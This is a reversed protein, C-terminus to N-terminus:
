LFESEDIKDRSHLDFLSQHELRVNRLNGVLHDHGGPLHAPSRAFFSRYLTQQGTLQGRTFSPGQVEPDTDNGCVSGKGVVEVDSGQHLLTDPEDSVTLTLASPAQIHQRSTSVMHDNRM